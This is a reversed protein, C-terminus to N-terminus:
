EELRKIDICITRTYSQWIDIWLYMVYGLVHLKRRVLELHPGGRHTYLVYLPLIVVLHKGNQAEEPWTATKESSM